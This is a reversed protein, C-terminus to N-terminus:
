KKGEHKFRCGILNLMVSASSQYRTIAMMTEPTNFKRSRYRKDSIDMKKTGWENKYFSALICYFM